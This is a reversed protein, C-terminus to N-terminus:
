PKELMKYRGQFTMSINRVSIKSNLQVAKLEKYLKFMACGHVQLQWADNVISLFDHHQALFHFYRFPSKVKRGQDVSVIVSSHDSVGPTMFEAESANFDCVWKANCLVRDIKRVCAQDGYTRKTWTFRSGKYRLDDLGAAEICNHFDDLSPLWKDTGGCRDSSNRVANFDGLVIWPIGDFVAGKHELDSWLSKRKVFSHEAYVFSALFEM